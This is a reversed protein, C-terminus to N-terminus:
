ALACRPAACVDAAFWDGSEAIGYAKVSHRDALAPAEFALFQGGVPFGAYNKAKPIGSMQLM